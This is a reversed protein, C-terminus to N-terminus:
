LGMKALERALETLREKKQTNEWRAADALHRIKELRRLLPASQERALNRRLDAEMFGIETQLNNLTEKM